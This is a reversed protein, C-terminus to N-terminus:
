LRQLGAVFAALEQVTMGDTHNWFRLLAQHNLKVWAIVDPAARRLEREPLSNALVRPEPGISVSFSPQDRGAKLFFKVRPGHAGVATSVFLVGAVGTELERLNVMEFLDEEELAALEQSLTPERLAGADWLLAETM